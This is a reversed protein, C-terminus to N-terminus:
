TYVATSSFLLRQRNKGVRLRHGHWTNGSTPGLARPRKLWRVDELDVVVLRDSLGDWLMNRWEGGGHVVGHSRLVALAKDREM